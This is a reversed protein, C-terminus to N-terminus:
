LLDVAEVNQDDRCQLDCIEFDFLGMFCCDSLEQHSLQRDSLVNNINMFPDM